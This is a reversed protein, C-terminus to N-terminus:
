ELNSRMNSLSFISTNEDALWLSCPKLASERECCQASYVTDFAREATDHAGSALFSGPASLLSDFKLELLREFEDKLSEGEPAMVKLWIPGILM